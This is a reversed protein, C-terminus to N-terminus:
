LFNKSDTFDTEDACIQPRIKWQFRKLDIRGSPSFVIKEAELLKRQRRGSNGPLSIRGKANIVRQWPIKAGPRLAHLAYGVLRSHGELGALEAIQGYTAVRGYPIRGVTKWIKDYNSM